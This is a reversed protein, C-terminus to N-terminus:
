VILSTDQADKFGWIERRQGDKGLHCLAHPKPLFCTKLAVKAAINPIEGEIPRLKRIQIIPPNVQSFEYYPTQLCVM